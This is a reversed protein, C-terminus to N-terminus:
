AQWQAERIALKRYGIALRAERDTIGIVSLLHGINSSAPHRLPQPNISWCFCFCFESSDRAPESSDRAPASIVSGFTRDKKPNKAGKATIFEHIQHNATEFDTWSWGFNPETGLKQAFNPETGSVKMLIQSKTNGISSICTVLLHTGAFDSTAESVKASVQSEIAPM